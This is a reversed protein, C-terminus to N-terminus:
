GARMGSGDKGLREELRTTARSQQQTEQPTGANGAKPAELAGSGGARLARDRAIDDFHLMNNFYLM